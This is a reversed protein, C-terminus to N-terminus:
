QVPSGQSAVNNSNHMDRVPIVQNRLTYSESGSRITLAHCERVQSITRLINGVHDTIQFFGHRQMSEASYANLQSEAAKAREDRADLKAILNAPLSPVQKVVPVSIKTSELYGFGSNIAAEMRIGIQNRLEAVTSTQKCIKDDISNNLHEGLVATSLKCEGQSRESSSSVRNDIDQQNLDRIHDWLKAMSRRSSTDFDDNDYIEGSANVFCLRPSKHKKALSTFVKVGAGKLETKAADLLEQDGVALLVAKAYVDIWTVTKPSDNNSSKEDDTDPEAFDMTLVMNPRIKFKLNKRVNRSLHCDVRGERSWMTFGNGDETIKHVLGYPM